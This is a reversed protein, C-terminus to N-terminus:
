RAIAEIFMQIMEKADPPGSIKLAIGGQDAQFSLDFQFFPCCGRESLIYDTLKLAFDNDDVFHFVFGNEVEETRKIETFIELKLKELRQILEPGTLRCVLTGSTITSDMLVLNEDADPNQSSATHMMFLCIICSCLNSFRTM